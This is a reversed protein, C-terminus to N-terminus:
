ANWVEETVEREEEEGDETEVTETKIYEDWNNKIDRESDSHNRSHLDAQKLQDIVDRLGEESMEAKFNGTCTGWDLAHPHYAEDYKVKKIDKKIPVKVGDIYFKEKAEETLERPDDQEKLKATELHVTKQYKLYRGEVEWNELNGVMKIGKVLMEKRESEIKDELRQNRAKLTDLRADVQNEYVQKTDEEVQDKVDQLTEADEIDEVKIKKAGDNTVFIGEDMMEPDTLTGSPEADVTVSSSAVFNEEDSILKDDYAELVEKLKKAIVDSFLQLDDEDDIYRAYRVGFADELFQSWGGTNFDQGTPGHEVGADFGFYEYFESHNEFMTALAYKIKQEESPSYGWRGCDIGLQDQLAEEIKEYDNSQIQVYNYNNERRIQVGLRM